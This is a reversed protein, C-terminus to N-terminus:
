ELTPRPPEPLPKLVVTRADYTEVRGNKRLIELDADQVPRGLDQESLQLFEGTLIDQVRGDGWDLVVEGTQALFIWGRAVSLGTTL